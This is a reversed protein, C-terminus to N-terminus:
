AQAPLTQVEKPLCDEPCFLVYQLSRFATYQNLRCRKFLTYFFACVVCPLLSFLAKQFALNFVLVFCFYHPFEDFPSNRNKYAKHKSCVEGRPTGKYAKPCVGEPETQGIQM